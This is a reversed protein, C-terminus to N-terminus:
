GRWPIAESVGLDLHISQGGPGAFLVTVRTVEWGTIRVISSDSGTAAPRSVPGASM